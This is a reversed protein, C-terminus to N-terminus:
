PGTQFDAADIRAIQEPTLRLSAARVSDRAHEPTSAGPIPIVCPSKALLWALIAAYPSAGHALGVERAVPHEGLRKSLRGGGVPSYPLFGLKERACYALVGDGEAERFFPSYRNQVSVVPVTKRAERIQAVSVNSLGIWRVKGAQVLTALAGVTEEFPVKLDPAHLQYLDIREVGLARLSRDCAERLHRPSGDREWRGEPRTCGGKTAVVLRRRDGRWSALAKAILRENHGLDKDDLCYVDATDILQAGADIAAHITRIAQTEDPRTRTSLPMGGLGVPFISPAGPGLPRPATM